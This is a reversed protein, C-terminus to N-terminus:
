SRKAPEGIIEQIQKRIALYTGALCIIGGDFTM